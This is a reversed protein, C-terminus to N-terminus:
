YSCGVSSLAEALEGTEFTPQDLAEGAAGVLPFGMKKTGAIREASRRTVESYPSLTHGDDMVAWQESQNAQGEFTFAARTTPVV